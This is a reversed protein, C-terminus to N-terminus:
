GNRDLVLMVRGHLHNFTSVRLQGDRESGVIVDWVEVLEEVTRWSVNARDSRHRSIRERMGEDFGQARLLLFAIRRFRSGLKGVGVQMNLSDDVRLHSGSGVAGGLRAM